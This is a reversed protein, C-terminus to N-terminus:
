LPSCDVVAAAPAPLPCACRELMFGGHQPDAAARQMLFLQGRSRRKSLPQSDRYERRVVRHALEYCLGCPLEVRTQVYSGYPVARGGAKRPFRWTRVARDAQTQAAAGRRRVIRITGDKRYRCRNLISEDAMPDALPQGTVADPKSRVTWLPCTLEAVTLRTRQADRAAFRLASLYRRGTGLSLARQPM